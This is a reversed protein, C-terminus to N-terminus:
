DLWLHRRSQVSRRGPPMVFVDHSLIENLHIGPIRVELLEGKSHKFKLGNFWPNFSASPGECFIIKQATVDNYSISHPNVVLKEFQFKEKRLINQQELYASFSTTLKQIDVRGANTVLGAGFPSHINQHRFNLAPELDLYKELQNAIAKEKWTGASEESLIKLIPSPDYLKVNLLDELARYTAEMQPFAIDVLWSKTMRRFVVFNIVGAAVASASPQGPDDFVLLSQNLKLLEFALLTGALGQGVIIFNVKM